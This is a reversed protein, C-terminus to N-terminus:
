ICCMFSLFFIINSCMILIDRGLNLNFCKIVLAVQVQCIWVCFILSIAGRKILSHIGKAPIVFSILPTFYGHFVMLFKLGSPQGNQM